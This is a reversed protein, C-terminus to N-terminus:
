NVGKRADKLEPSDPFKRELEQLLSKSKDADGARHAAVAAKSLSEADFGLGPYKKVLGEYRTVASDYKEKKFYFDAIYKEKEALMKYSSERKERAEKVYESNPYQALVEDFYLIASGALTLDRDITAPLQNFFSLGLRYTVYDSQAHKPHLEKFTQYAAQAEAFSEDKFHCDAIALEALTAYKSYPFKNKVEQYKLTAREWLEEKDLDQAIKYLGEASDANKEASACGFITQLGFCLVLIYLFSKALRM